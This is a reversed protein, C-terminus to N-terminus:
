WWPDQARHGPNTTARLREGVAQVLMRMPKGERGYGKVRLINRAPWRSSGNKCTKPIPVEGM